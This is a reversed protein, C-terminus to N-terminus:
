GPPSLSTYGICEGAQRCNYGGCLAPDAVLAMGVAESGISAQVAERGVVAPVLVVRDAFAADSAGTGGWTVDM